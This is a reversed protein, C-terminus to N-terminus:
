EGRVDVVMRVAFETEHRGRYGSGPPPPMDTVEVERVRPKRELSEAFRFVEETAARFHSDFIELRGRFLVVRHHVKPTDEGRPGPWADRESIEFWELSTLQVDPFGSLAESVTRLVPLARVRDAELRQATEVALQVDRPMVESEPMRETRYRVELARAERNLSETSAALSQSRHLSAGGGASGAILLVVGGAMLARGTQRTRHIARAAGPAYHDALRRDLALHAFARDCGGDPADGDESKSARPCGGLRREVSERDVLGDVLAGRGEVERIADLLPAAGVIRMQLEAPSEGAREVHDVIRGVEEVIRRARHLREGPPLPALRSLTLRGDEFVTQRLNRDGSETVLLVRGAAADLLPLMLASAIPLSHVGAVPADRELLVDLWPQVREPRVIASFLVRDDRRGDRVRGEQRAFVFPTGRFLRAARTSHVRRRSLGRVHPTTERRFDEEIVDVLLHIPKAAARQLYDGFRALGTADAAFEVAPRPGRSSGPFLRAGGARVLLVRRRSRRSLSERLWRM